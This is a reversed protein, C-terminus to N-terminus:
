SRRRLPGSTTDRYYQRHPRRCLTPPKPRYFRPTRGRKVRARCLLPLPNYNADTDSKARGLHEQWIALEKEKLKM